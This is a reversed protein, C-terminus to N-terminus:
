INLSRVSHRLLPVWIAADGKRSKKDASGGAASNQEAIRGNGLDEGVSGDSRSNLDTFRNKSPDTGVSHSSSFDAIYGVGQDLM